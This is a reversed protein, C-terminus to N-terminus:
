PFHGVTSLLLGRNHQEADMETIVGELSSPLSFVAEGAAILLLACFFTHFIGTNCCSKVKIM